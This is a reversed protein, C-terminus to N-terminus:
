AGVKAWAEAATFTGSGNAQQCAYATFTLKPQNDATILDMMEKTVSDKVTVKDGALVSYSTDATTAAQERYYVGDVGELATWGDAVTYSIYDSLKLTASEEIKVFVYCAESNAKVTVKPDKDITAGPVMKATQGEPKTEALEIDVNGATFTNEVSETTDTLWAVTGGIAAGLVLVAALLLAVTKKKM